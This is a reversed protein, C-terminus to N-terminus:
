VVPGGPFGRVAMKLARLHNFRFLFDNPEKDFKVGQHWKITVPSHPTLWQSLIGDNM